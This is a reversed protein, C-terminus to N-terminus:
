SLMAKIRRVGASSAEEKIIKFNGLVGTHEVHPGGCIEMSYDGISYVKVKDGYKDGFLGIAGQGKAEEVSMETFSIPLDQKIKCNIIDEVDRIQQATMKLPHSFDFRLRESTINSGKQEVHTGLVDRLAQDLLHTATHYKTVIESHDALGGKFMGASATRSLEQHKKMEQEFGQEDVKVNKEAALEKTMEIPFGYTSYLDFAEAGSIIKDLSLKNFEKLGKDLTKEFIEEETKLDRIIRTKNRLFEPYIEKFQNVVIEVIPGTLDAEVPIGIKKAHRVARRILKRVVYGQNINSPTIGIDDAMIFIASRLHDTIIRASKEEYNVALKKIQNMIESLTDIEFVSKKNELSAFVRELGFGTDVNKQKLPSYTGDSNKYYQMFVDNWIELWNAEDNAPNSGTPPLDTQGVWYFMETDPGCPGTEGVPGWWNNKKPLYGIREEPMGVKLWIKTTEEDRPADDDGSFVSVALKKPDLGLWNKSTLFEWSYNIAEEKWYDGLSWNGLMEFFTLHSNDGVEDIDGTRICKQCSTLRAGAPHKEGMLFPVLPHMGATTFLISPDNEPILSASPIVVHGKAKFFDLYKQRLENITMTIFIDSFFFLDILSKLCSGKLLNVYKIIKAINLHKAFVWM